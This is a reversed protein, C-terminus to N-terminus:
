RFEVYRLFKLANVKFRFKIQKLSWIKSFFNM